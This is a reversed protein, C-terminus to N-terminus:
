ATQGAGLLLQVIGRLFASFVLEGLLNVGFSV